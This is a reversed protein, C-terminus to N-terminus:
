ENFLDTLNNVYAYAVRISTIRNLVEVKERECFITKTAM